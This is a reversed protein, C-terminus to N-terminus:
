INTRITENTDNREYRKTRITENTNNEPYSYIQINTRILFKYEDCGSRSVFNVNSSQLQLHIEQEADMQMSVM